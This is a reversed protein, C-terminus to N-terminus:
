FDFMKIRNRLYIWQCSSNKGPSDAMRSTKYYCVNGVKLERKPPVESRKNGNEM